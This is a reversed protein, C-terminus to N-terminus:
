CLYSFFLLTIGTGKFPKKAVFITMITGVVATDYYALLQKTIFIYKNESKISLIIVPDKM